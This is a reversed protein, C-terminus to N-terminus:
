KKQKKTQEKTSKKDKKSKSPLQQEYHMRYVKPTTGVFKLFATHFSQRHAFGVMDSIEEINLEAYRQDTLLAMAEEIRFKNVLSSYNTHFQVRIVASVYRVNTKIDIALQRATYASDRYKKELVLKTLIAERLKDMLQPSVLKRYIAEKDEKIEFHYNIM